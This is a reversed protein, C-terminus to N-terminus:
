KLNWIKYVSKVYEIKINLELSIIELSTLDDAELRQIILEKKSKQKNM